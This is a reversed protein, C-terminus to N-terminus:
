GSSVSEEKIGDVGLLSFERDVVKSFIENEKIYFCDQGECLICRGIYSSGTMHLTVGRECLAAQWDSFSRDQLERVWDM